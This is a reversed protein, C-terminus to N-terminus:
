QQYMSTLGGGFWADTTNGSAALYRRALSLPGRVSATATDNSFTIRDVTSVPTSTFGGGFWAMIDANRYEVWENNVARLHIDNIIWPGKFNEEVYESM